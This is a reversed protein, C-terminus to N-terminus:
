TIYNKLYSFTVEEKKKNTNMNEYKEAAEDMENSIEALLLDLETPNEVSGSDAIQNRMKRKHNAIMTKTHDRVSKQNVNFKIETIKNLDDAVATWAAGSEKTGPKFNYPKMLLLERGLMVEHNAEWKM